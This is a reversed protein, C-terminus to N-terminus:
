IEYEQETVLLTNAIDEARFMLVSVTGLYSGKVASGMSMQVM